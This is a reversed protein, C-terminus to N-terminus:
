VVKGRQKKEPKVKKETNGNYVMGSPRKGKEQALINGNCFVHIHLNDEM